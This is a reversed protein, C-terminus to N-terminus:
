KMFAGGRLYANNDLSSFGHQLSVMWLPTNDGTHLTSGFEAFGDIKQANLASSALLLAVLATAGKRFLTYKLM